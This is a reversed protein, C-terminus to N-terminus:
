RASVARGCGMVKAAGACTPPADRGATGAGAPSGTAGATPARCQRARWPGTFFARSRPQFLNPRTFRGSSLRPPFQWFLPGFRRHRHAAM